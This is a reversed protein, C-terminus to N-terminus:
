LGAFAREIMEDDDDDDDDSEVSNVSSEPTLFPLDDDDEHMAPDSELNTLTSCNEEESRGLAEEEKKETAIKGIASPCISMSRARAIQNKRGSDISSTKRSSDEPSSVCISKSRKRSESKMSAKKKQEEAKEERRIDNLVSDYILMFEHLTKFTETPETGEDEGLFDRMKNLSSLTDDHISKMCTLTEDSDEAFPVMVDRFRDNLDSTEDLVVSAHLIEEKLKAQDSSLQQLTRSVYDKQFRWAVSVKEIEATFFRVKDNTKLLEKVIFHLLSTKRDKGKIDKLKLLSEIKFGAASGRTTGTNLYNGVTLVGELVLKLCSSNLVQSSAQKLTNLEERLLDICSVFTKKYILSDIRNELRPISIVEMFYLEVNGLKSKDGSYNRLKTAEQETPVSRKLVHLQELSFQSDNMDLLSTRIKSFDLKMGSLEISINHSRKLDVLHVKTNKKKEVKKAPKDALAFLNELAEVNLGFEERESEWVTKKTRAKHLKQWHLAKMKKRNDALVMAANPGM